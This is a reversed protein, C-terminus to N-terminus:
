ETKTTRELLDRLVAEEDTTETAYFSNVDITTPVLYSFTQLGIFLPHTRMILALKVILDASIGVMFTLHTPTLKETEFNVLKQQQNSILSEIHLPFFLVRAEKFQPGHKSAVPHIEFGKNSSWDIPSFSM